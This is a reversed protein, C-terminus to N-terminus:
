FFRARKIKGAIVVYEARVRGRNVLRYTGNAMKGLIAFVNSADACDTIVTEGCVIRMNSARVNRYAGQAYMRAMDYGNDQRIARLTDAFRRRAKTLQRQVRRGEKTDGSLALRRQGRTKSATLLAKHKARSCLSARM